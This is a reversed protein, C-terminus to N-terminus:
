EPKKALRAKMMRLENELQKVRAELSADSNVPEVRGLLPSVKEELEKLRSLLAMSM